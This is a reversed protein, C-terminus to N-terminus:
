KKRLLPLDSFIFVFSFSISTSLISDFNIESPQKLYLFIFVICSSIGLTIIFKYLRKRIDIWKINKLNILTLALVYILFLGLFIVYGFVFKIAFPHDFNMYVIFLTMILGVIGLGYMIITVINKKM